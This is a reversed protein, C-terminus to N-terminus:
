EHSVESPEPHETQYTTIATKVASVIAGKEGFDYQRNLQSLSEKHNGEAPINLQKFIYGEPIGYATAIYPITMWGRVAEVDTIGPQLGMRQLRIYSRVTRLGFFGVLFIGLIILMFFIRQENRSLTPHHKDPTEM